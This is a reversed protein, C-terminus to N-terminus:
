EADLDSLTFAEGDDDEFQNSGMGYMANHQYEEAAAVLTDSLSFHFPMRDTVTKDVYDGLLFLNDKTYFRKLVEKVLFWYMGFLRYKTPDAQLLQLTSTAFQKPDM